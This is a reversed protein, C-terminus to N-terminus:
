SSRISGLLVDATVQTFRIRAPFRLPTCDLSSPSSCGTFLAAMSSQASSASITMKGLRMRGDSTLSPSIHFEGEYSIPMAPGPVPQTTPTIATLPNCSTSAATQLVTSLLISGRMTQSFPNMVGYRPGGTSFTIPSSPDVALQPPSGPPCAGDAAVIATAQLPDVPSAILSAAGGQLTEVAGLEGYGAADGGFDAEMTFTGTLNLKQPDAPTTGPLPWSDATNDWDIEV